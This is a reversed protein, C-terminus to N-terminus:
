VTISTLITTAEQKKIQDSHLLAKVKKCLLMSLKTINYNRNGIVNALVVIAIKKKKEILYSARFCSTGGKHFLYKGNPFMHWGLGMAMPQNGFIINAYKKQTLALYSPNLKLQKNLFLLSDSLTSLVAGASAYVDGPEWHFHYRIKNRHYSELNYFSDKSIVSHPLQMDNKLFDNMIVEFPQKGVQTIVEGLIAGNIDSYHYSYRKPKLHFSAIQKLLHASKMGQYLNVKMNRSRLLYAWIFRLSILPVYGSTHTALSLITPYVKGKPLNLYQDITDELRIKKEQIFKALLSSLYVKSISGVEYLYSKTDPFADSFFYSKEGLPSSIGISLALNPEIKLFAEIYDKVETDLYEM